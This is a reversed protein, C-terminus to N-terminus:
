GSKSVREILPLLVTRPTHRGSTSVVKNIVGPV